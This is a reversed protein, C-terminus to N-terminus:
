ATDPTPHPTGPAEPCEVNLMWREVNLRAGNFTSRQVKFTSHEPRTKRTGSSQPRAAGATGTEKRVFKLVRNNGADAVYLNGKSDLAIAWPNNMQGPGNGAGGLWELSQHAADFIQVRSNGFECVYARGQGDIKVDYPYSLEGAGRGARGFTELWEGQPSFIQIRHNCSDAVFIRDSADIGLGEARNFEGRGDGPRGFCRLPRHEQGSFEQVRDVLTYESVFLDGHSNVAVSRPLTLFGVNTGRAGWQAALAGNTSFHNVRQYHPEVIVIRGEADRSMGKPKGLDTEPMRWSLLVEGRPSFKQVRGTMDVVYLNDDRDLALSRPKVFQGMGTGRTGITEVRQFLSDHRAASTTDGRPSCGAALGLCLAAGAAVLVPGRRGALRWVSQGLWWVAFPAAALALMTLCLANVQANHGYHLLNFARLALTEGGPPYLMVLTEVDWLCLLYTVYWAAAVPAAIQPWLVRRFLTWGEAAQLRAADTLDPDVSRRAIAVLNWAPALYRVAFVLLVLSATGYLWTGNAAAVALRGLLIGPVLFTLWLWLGARSRWTVLALTVVLVAAGAAYFFSNWVTDRAARFLNPLETWTRPNLLLGQLPLGLAVGVLLAAAARASWTWAAGLQRRWAQALAPGGVTPWALAPRRLALLLVVSMMVMPLGAMWAGAEDLRTSFALWLEEPFVKVQLIVPVAFNNLTLVFTLAAAQAMAPRAMPLLARAVLRRGRLRPELELQAAELRSWAGWIALASVPWYMLVLLWVAGGLSFLSFLGNGPWSATQRFLDLWAGVVLFPPLALTALAAGFWVRRWSPTSGAMAVAVVLGLASTFLTVMGSVLLSNLLLPWNV